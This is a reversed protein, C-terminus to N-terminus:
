PRWGAPRRLALVITKDDDTRASVRESRLFDGLQAQGAAPTEVEVAFTLLPRFFPAHPRRQGDLVLRILGDTMLALARVPEAYVYIDLHELANPQSLFYTENAYEGRQPEAALFWDSGASEEPTSEAAPSFGAAIGDGLQAVALVEDSLAACLLTSAFARAPLGAAEALSDVNAKAESYAQSFLGRWPDTGAPWGGSLAAELAALVSDAACRAGEASREASGAGDAVALIVGGPLSKFAHADQCPLGTKLHSTGAVSAGLLRWVPLM